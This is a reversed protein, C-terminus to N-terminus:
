TTKESETSTLTLFGTYVERVASRACVEARARLAKVAVLSVFLFVTGMALHAVEYDLFATVPFVFGFHPLLLLILHKLAILGSVFVGVWVVALLGRYLEAIARTAEARKAAHHQTTYDLCLSFLEQGAVEGFLMRARKLIGSKLAASFSTDTDSLVGAVYDVDAREARDAGFYQRLLNIIIGAAYAAVIWMVLPVLGSGLTLLNILMGVFGDLFWLFLGLLVAGPILNVVIDRPSLLSVEYRM